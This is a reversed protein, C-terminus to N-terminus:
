FRPIRRVVERQLEKQADVNRGLKVGIKQAAAQATRLDRAVNGARERVQPDSAQQAVAELADAQTDLQSNLQQVQQKAVETEKAAAELKKEWDFGFLSASTFGAKTLIGNFTAPFVMLMLLVFLLLGDRALNLGSRISEMRGTLGAAEESM